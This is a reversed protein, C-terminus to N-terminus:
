STYIASVPALRRAPAWKQATLRDARMEMAVDGTRESIVALANALHVAGARRAADDDAILEVLLRTAVLLRRGSRLFPVCARYLEAARVALYHHGRLHAREHAVVARLQAPTLAERLGRSVVVAADRGPLACAFLEETECTLLFAGRDLRARSHPIALVAGYTTSGAGATEDSGAAITVVVAGVAGLAAWGAVTQIVAATESAISPASLALGVSIVVSAALSAVGLLLTAHWMGLATRPHHIQWRGVTLLRAGTWWSALAGLLCLGVLVM